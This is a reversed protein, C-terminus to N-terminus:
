HVVRHANQVPQILLSQQRDHHEIQQLSQEVSPAARTLDIEAMRGFLSNNLFLAKTHTIYIEGLDEPKDLRALHCAAAAQALRAESINPPLREKLAAHIAHQPHSPNSFGRLTNGAEHLKAGVASEVSHVGHTFADEAQRAAHVISEGTRQVAREAALMERGAASEVRAAITTTFEMARALNAIGSVPLFPTQAQAHLGERFEVVNGRYRSIGQAHAQARAENEVTLVSHGRGSGPAFNDISHDSFRAGALARGPFNWAHPDLYGAATLSEIDQPTAFERVRGFHRGPSVPDCALVNDIVQTGGEPVGYLGAAGYANFTEGRLYCKYAAIEALTGGLSHGTVTVQATHGHLLAWQAAEGQVKRVFALADHEQVNVKDIVMIADTAVDQITTLTHRKFDPDTGRFAIVVEGTDVRQYATAHFGVATAAYDLVRYDHGHIHQRKDQRVDGARDIYADKSLYAYDLTDFSM